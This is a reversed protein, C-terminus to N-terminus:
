EVYNPKYYITSIKGEKKHWLHVQAEKLHNYGEAYAWASLPVISPLTIVRVGRKEIAYQHHLHATHIERYKAKYWLEPVEDAMILPLDELKKKKGGSKSGHDFGILCEGWDYYKRLLPSNDIEVQKTNHYWASLTEGLFFIKEVDHNGSVVPVYVDAVTMLMDIAKVAMQRGYTFSKQWRCDEHQVTGSFTTNLASNVNFFDNGIPFLIKSVNFNKSIQIFYNVCELFMQEAIKIDYNQDNTEGEWSLQGYHLDPISVEMMIDSLKKSRKFKPYDIKHKSIDEIFRNKIQEEPEQERRKCEVRVQYNPNEASGWSNVRLRVPEWIVTDIKAYDVADELTRIEHSSMFTYSSKNRDEEYDTKPSDNGNEKIKLKEIARRIYRSFTQTQVPEEKIEDIHKIYNKAVWDRGYKEVHYFVWERSTNFKKNM